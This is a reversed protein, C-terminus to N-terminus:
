HFLFSAELVVLAAVEVVGNVAHPVVGGMNSITM